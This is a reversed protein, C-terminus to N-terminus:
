RILKLVTALEDSDRFYQVGGFHKLPSLNFTEPDLLTLVMKGSMYAHIAAGTANSTIAGDYEDVIEDLAREM